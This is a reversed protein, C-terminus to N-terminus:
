KQAIIVPNREKEAQARLEKELKIERFGAKYALISVSSLFHKDRYRNFQLQSSSGDRNPLPHTAIRWIGSGETSRITVISATPAFGSGMDFTYDGAPLLQDGAYFSFPVHIKMLAGADAFSFGAILILAAALSLVALNKKM